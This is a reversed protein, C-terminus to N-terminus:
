AKPIEAKPGHRSEFLMEYKILFNRTADLHEVDVM